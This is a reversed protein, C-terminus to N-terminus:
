LSFRGTSEEVPRKRKHPSFQETSLFLLLGCRFIRAKKTSSGQSSERPQLEELWFTPQRTVQEFTQSV